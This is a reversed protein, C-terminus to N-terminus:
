KKAKKLEKIFLVISDIEHDKLVGLYSPMGVGTRETEFGAM